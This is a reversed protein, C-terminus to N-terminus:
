IAMGSGALFCSMELDLKQLGQLAWTASNNWPIFYSSTQPRLQIYIILYSTRNLGCQYPHYSLVSFFTVALVHKTRKSHLHLSCSAPLQFTLTSLKVVHQLDSKKPMLPRSSDLWFPFHGGIRVPVFAIVDRTVRLRFRSNGRVRRQATLAEHYKGRASGRGTWSSSFM